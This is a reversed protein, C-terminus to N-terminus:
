VYTCNFGPSSLCSGNFPPCFEPNTGDTGLLPGGSSAGLPLLVVGLLVLAVLTLIKVMTIWYEVEGYKRVNLFNFALPLTIFILIWAWEPVKQTTTWFNVIEQMAVIENPVITVCSLFLRRNILSHVQVLIGLWLCVGACSNKNWHPPCVIAPSLIRGPLVFLAGPIPLVSTM